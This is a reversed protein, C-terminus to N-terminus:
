INVFQQEKFCMTFILLVSIALSSTKPNYGKTLVDTELVITPHKNYWSPNFKQRMLTWYSSACNIFVLDNKSHTTLILDLCNSSNQSSLKSQDLIPNLLEKWIDSSRRAM